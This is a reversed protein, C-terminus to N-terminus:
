LNIPRLCSVNQSAIRIKMAFRAEITNNDVIIGRADGTSTKFAENAAPKWGSLYSIESKNM